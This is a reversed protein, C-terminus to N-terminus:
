REGPTRRTWEDSAYKEAARERARELEDDTWSGEAADAWERLASELAAVAEARSGDAHDEIGTVRERFAAADADPDAFVSLHREPSVSYTLSGHQVVADTRRHQANGSVKREEGEVPVVVDHAPHLERLYCAPPYVAPRETEAFRAPVGMREFADLIPQCLRHYSEVLDGSLEEAPVVITYSIDGYADHYIGGGGTQRRTVGIGERGCGAWDVTDPDQHYGLSLTSPGWRYVRLTRPGGAAATEAAIEDLAMNMPGPWAEERILRWERDEGGDM